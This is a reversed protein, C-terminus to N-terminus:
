GIGMSGPRDRSHHIIADAAARSNPQNGRGAERGDASRSTRLAINEMLAMAPFCKRPDRRWSPIADHVAGYRRVNGRPLEGLFEEALNWSSNPDDSGSRVHHTRTVQPVGATWHSVIPLGLIQSLIAKLRKIARLYRSGAGAKSMGM